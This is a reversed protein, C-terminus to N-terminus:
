LAAKVDLLGAGYAATWPKTGMATLKRASATLRQKIKVADWTPNKAAVLGAVATVHPTAMSTGSWAAYGTDELWPSTKLPLTSLINSGPAVLGIHRGTNSFVSRRLTEAVAGVALVTQYAGPYETPNGDQYENGMAACVVVRAAELRRFLLQETQSSETGGISLNIARVGANRAEGLARLYREGDVYFEGDSAPQDEFIKWVVLRCGSAVGAIGVGNNAKAAIIGSVHTGHGLLDRAGLGDHHYASVVGRLDPHTTDVGTDLVGITVSTTPFAAGFWTIARLGWQRNTLPDVAAAATPRQLWRAPMPEAIEVTRSAKLHRMLAPTVKKPDLEVVNIGALDENTAHAVSSFVALHARGAGTARAVQSRRTSFVPTVRKLGANKRLYELPAAVDEPVAAAAGTMRLGAGRAAPIAGPRIRLIMQGPVFRMRKPGHVEVTKGVVRTEGKLM